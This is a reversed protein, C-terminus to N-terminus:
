CVLMAVYCSWVTSHPYYFGFVQFCLAMFHHQISPPFGSIGTYTAAHMIVHTCVQLELSIKGLVQKMKFTKMLYAPVETSCDPGHPKFLYFNVRYVYM